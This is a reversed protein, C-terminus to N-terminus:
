RQAPRHGLEGRLGQTARDVSRLPAGDGGGGLVYVHRGWTAVAFASRPRPLPTTFRWPSLSGDARIRSAEVSDLRQRGDHGGAIYLYDGLVFAEAVLRPQLLANPEIRWPSLTADVGITAREVDGYTARPDRMHGGLLYLNRGHRAAAHIYRDIISRHREERWPSLSGDPRISAREISKLFIGSYGGIAYINHGDIVAKLGRRATEMDAIKQWPGLSGDERIEAREVSNLPYNAEGPAGAGGGLTYLYGEYAVAANYFRGERLASTRRWPGLRGDPGIAAYEVEHVYRGEGDIGGIVYLVGRHAVAAPARRALAFPPEAVWRAQWAQHRPQNDSGSILWALLTVVLAAVTLSLLLSSRRSM